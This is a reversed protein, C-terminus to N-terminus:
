APKQLAAEVTNAAWVAYEGSASHLSLLIPEIDFLARLKPNVYIVYASRPAVTLAATINQVVKRMVPAEFPHYMFIVFPGSPIPFEAADGEHVEIPRAGARANEGAIAALTPSIEVGLIKQFPLRSAVLLARGKGCGLDLFTFRSPEPIHALAECLIAEDVPLYGANCADSSRGSKLAEWGVFGSTQVQHAADFGDLPPPPSKQAFASLSRRFLAQAVRTPGLSLARRALTLDM